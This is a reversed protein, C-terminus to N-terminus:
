PEVHPRPRMMDKPLPEGNKIPDLYAALQGLDMGYVQICARDLDMGEAAMDLFERLATLGGEHEVLQWVMLFSSYSARRYNERDKGDDPDLGKALLTDVHSPSLLIPGHVRFEAMYSLLHMGDEGM